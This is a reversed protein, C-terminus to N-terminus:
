CWRGHTASSTQGPVVSVTRFIKLVAFVSLVPFPGSPSNSIYFPCFCDLPQPSSVLFLSFMLPSTIVHQLSTLILSVETYPLQSAMHHGKYLLKPTQFSVGNFQLILSTFLTVIFKIHKQSAFTGTIAGSDGQLNGFSFCTPEQQCPGM